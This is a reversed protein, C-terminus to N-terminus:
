CSEAHRSINHIHQFYCNQNPTMSVHSNDSFDAQKNDQCTWRNTQGETCRINFFMDTSFFVEYHRRKYTGGATIKNGGCVAKHEIWYQEEEVEANNMFKQARYDHNGIAKISNYASLTEFYEEAGNEEQQWVLKGHCDHKDNCGNNDINNLATWLDSDTKSALYKIDEYLEATHWMALGM